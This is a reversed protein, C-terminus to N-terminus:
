FICFYVFIIAVLRYLLEPRTIDILQLRGNDNFASACFLTNDQTLLNYAGVFYSLFDPALDLDDEVIIVTSYNHAM